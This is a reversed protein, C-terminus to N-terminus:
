LIISYLINLNYQYAIGKELQKKINDYDYDKDIKIEFENLKNNSNMTNELPHINNENENTDISTIIETENYAILNTDLENSYKYNDSIKMNEVNEETNM